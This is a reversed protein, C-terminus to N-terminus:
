SRTRYYGHLTLYVGTTHIKQSCDEKFCFCVDKWFALLSLLLQFPPPFRLRGRRKERKNRQASAKNLYEFVVTMTGMDPDLFVGDLTNKWRYTLKKGKGRIRLQTM